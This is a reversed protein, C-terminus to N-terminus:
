TAPTIQTNDANEACCAEQICEQWKRCSEVYIQREQDTMAAFRNTYIEIARETQAQTLPLVIKSFKM